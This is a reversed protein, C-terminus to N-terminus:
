ETSTIVKVTSIWKRSAKSASRLRRSLLFHNTIRRSSRFITTVLTTKLINCHRCKRQERIACPVIEINKGMIGNPHWLPVFLIQNYM